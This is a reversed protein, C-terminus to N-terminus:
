QKKFRRRLLYYENYPHDDTITIGRDEPLLEALPIERALVTAWDTRADKKM